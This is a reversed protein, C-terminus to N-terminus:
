SVDLMSVRGGLWHLELQDRKGDDKGAVHVLIRSLVDRLAANARAVSEADKNKNLRDRHFSGMEIAVDQLRAPLASKILQVEVLALQRGVDEQRATLAAIASQNATDGDEIDIQQAEISGLQQLLDARRKDLTSRDIGPKTVSSSPSSLATGALEVLTRRNALGFLAREVRELLIARYECGRGNRAASCALFPRLREGSGHTVTTMPGLCLGCSGLASLIHSAKAKSPPSKRDKKRANLTKQAAKFLAATVVAPYYGAIPQLPRRRTAAKSSNFSRVVKHPTYTGTTAESLLIKRVYIHSWAGARGWTPVSEASLGRAIELPTMGNAAERYM